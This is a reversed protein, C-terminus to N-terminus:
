GGSPLGPLRLRAWVVAHDSGPLPDQGADVVTLGRVMVHDLQIFAPVPGFGDLPWTRVWRGGVAEHADTLGEAMARLAPHAQSANFDGAMVVPADAPRSAQWFTLWGLDDRWQGADTTPPNTHAGLLSWRGRPSDVLVPVSDFVGRPQDPLLEHKEATLVLTGGADERVTGSRHPLLATLGSSELEREASATVELLVLADVDHAEVLDALADLDGQGYRLNASMVVVDDDQSTGPSNAWWPVALVAYPVLLAAASLAVPWRRLLAALALLVVLSLGVVPLLSQLIPVPGGLDVFRLVLWLAGLGAWLGLVATGVARLGVRRPLRQTRVAAGRGSEPGSEGM